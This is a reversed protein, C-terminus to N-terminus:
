MSITDCLLISSGQIGEDEIILTALYAMVYQIINSSFYNINGAVSLPKYKFLSCISAKVLWDTPLM